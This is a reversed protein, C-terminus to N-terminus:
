PLLSLHHLPFSPLGPRSLLGSELEEISTIKKKKLKLTEVVIYSSSSSLVNRTCSILSHDDSLFRNRQIILGGCRGSFSGVITFWVHELRLVGSDLYSKGQTIKPAIPYYVFTSSAKVLLDPLRCLMARNFGYHILGKLPKCSASVMYVEFNPSLGIRCEM